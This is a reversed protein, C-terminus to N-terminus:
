AEFYKSAWVPIAKQYPKWINIRIGQIWETIFWLIVLIILFMVVLAGLYFNSVGGEFIAKLVIFIFAAIFLLGIVAGVVAQSINQMSQAEYEFIADSRAGIIPAKFQVPLEYDSNNEFLIEIVGGDNQNLYEFKIEVTTDNIKAAHFGIDENSGGLVSCSLVRARNEFIAKPFGTIPIDQKRIEKKGKNFFLVRCRALNEIREEQFLITVSPHSRVQLLNHDYIFVPFRVSKSKFYFVVGAVGFIISTITGVWGLIDSVSLTSFLYNSEPAPTEGLSDGTTGFGGSDTLTNGPANSTTSPGVSSSPIIGGGGHIAGGTGRSEGSPLTGSAMISFSISSLM